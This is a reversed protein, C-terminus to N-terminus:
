HMATGSLTRNDWNVQLDFQVNGTAVEQINGYTSVDISNGIASAFSILICLHALIIM